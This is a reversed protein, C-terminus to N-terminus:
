RLEVTQCCRLNRKMVFHMKFADWLAIATNLKMASTRQIPNQPVIRHDSHLLTLPAILPTISIVFGSTRRRQIYMLKWVLCPAIYGLSNPLM